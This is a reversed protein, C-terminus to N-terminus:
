GGVAAVVIGVEVEVTVRQPVFDETLAYYEEDLRGIRFPRGEVAALAEADELTLGLYQDVLFVADDVPDGAPPEDVGAVVAVLLRDGLPDVLPVALEFAGALAICTMTAANANAGTELLVEVRDAMETVSARAGSCPEVGNWFRVLVTRGDPAVLLEEPLVPRPDVLDSMSEVRQWGISPDVPEPEGDAPPSTVSTPPDVDPEDDPDDTRAPPTTPAADDSPDEDGSEETPGDAGSSDEGPGPDVPLQGTPEDDDIEVPPTTPVPVDGGHGEGGDAGTEPQSTASGPGTEGASSVIAPDSGCSALVVALFLGGFVLGLFRQSVRMCRLREGSPFRNGNHSM